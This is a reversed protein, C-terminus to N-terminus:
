FILLIFYFIFCFYFLACFFLFCAMPHLSSTTRTHDSVLSGRALYSQDLCSVSCCFFICRLVSKEICFFISLICDNTVLEAITGHRGYNVLCRAVRNQERSIKFPNCVRSELLDKMEANGHLSRYFAEERQRGEPSFGFVLKPPSRRRGRRDRVPPPMASTALALILPSRRRAPPPKHPYPSNPSPAM